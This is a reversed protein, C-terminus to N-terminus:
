PIRLITLKTGDIVAQQAIRATAHRSTHYWVLSWTPHSGRGSWARKSFRQILPEDAISHHTSQDLVQENLEPALSRRLVKNIIRTYM